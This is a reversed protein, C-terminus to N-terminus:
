IDTHRYIYIYIYALEQILVLYQGFPKDTKIKKGGSAVIRLFSTKKTLSPLGRVTSKEVTFGSPKLTLSNMVTTAM